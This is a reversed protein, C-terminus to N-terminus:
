EELETESNTNPLSCTGETQADAQGTERNGHRGVQLSQGCSPCVGPGDERTAPRAQRFTTVIERELTVEVRHRVTKEVGNQKGQFEGEPLNPPLTKM